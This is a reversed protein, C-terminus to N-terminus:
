VPMHAWWQKEHFHFLVYTHPCIQWGWQYDCHYTPLWHGLPRQLHHSNSTLYMWTIFQRWAKWAAPGPTHHNPWTLTSTNQRYHQNHTAAPVPYIMALIISTGQHDTIESLMNVQLFLRLMLHLSWALFYVCVVNCDLIFSPLGAIGIGLGM